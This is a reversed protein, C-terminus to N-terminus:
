FLKPVFRGVQALYRQYIDGHLQVLYHEERRAEWQLLVIGIMGVIALVDCPVAVYSALLLVCQLAYIPHRVYAYPGAVVLQTKEDPDIGMRWSKGMRKWCILTAIFALVAILVAPWTILPNSWRVRFAPPPHSSFAVVFPTTIWAAIAPYWIIRLVRGLMEPPLFNAARGTQRQAKRVLHLVRSWYAAILVGIILAQYSHIVSERV